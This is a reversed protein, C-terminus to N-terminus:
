TPAASCASLPSIQPEPPNRTALAVGTATLRYVQRPPRGAVESDQWEAVIFAQAALRMLIPYLTGSKLGMTQSMEYGHVGRDRAQLLAFLVMRTQRSPSRARVM